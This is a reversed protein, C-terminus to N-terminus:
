DVFLIALRVGVIQSIESPDVLMIYHLLHPVGMSRVLLGNLLPLLPLRQPPRSMSTSHNNRRLVTIDEHRRPLIM